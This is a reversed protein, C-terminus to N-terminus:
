QRHTSSCSESIQDDTFPYFGAKTLREFREKRRRMLEAVEEANKRIVCTSHDPFLSEYYSAPEGTRRARENASPSLRVPKGCIRCYKM